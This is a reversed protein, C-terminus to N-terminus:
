GQRGPLTELAHIGPDEPIQLWMRRMTRMRHAVQRFYPASLKLSYSPAVRDVLRRVEDGQVPQRTLPAGREQLVIIDGLPDGLSASPALIGDQNQTM